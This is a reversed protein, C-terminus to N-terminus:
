NSKYWKLLHSKLVFFLRKTVAFEAQPHVSLVSSITAQCHKVDIICISTFLKFSNSLSFNIKVALFSM